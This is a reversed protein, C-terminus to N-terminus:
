SLEKDLKPTDLEGLAALVGDVGPNIALPSM